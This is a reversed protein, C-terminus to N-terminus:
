RPDDGVEVGALCMVTAAAAAVDANVLASLSAVKPPPESTFLMVRSTRRSNAELFALLPAFNGCIVSTVTTFEEVSGYTSAPTIVETPRRCRQTDNGGGELM